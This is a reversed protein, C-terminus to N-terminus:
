NTTGVTEVIYLGSEASQATVKYNLAGAIRGNVKDYYDKGLLNEHDPMNNETLDMAFDFYTGPVKGGDILCRVNENVNRDFVKRQGTGAEMVVRTIDGNDSKNFIRRLLSHKIDGYLIQTTGKEGNVLDERFKQFRKVVGPGVPDGDGAVVKIEWEAAVAQKWSLSFSSIIRKTGKDMQGTNISTAQRAVGDIFKQNEFDIVLIGNTAFSDMGDFKNMEDIEVGDLPMVNEGNVNVQFETLDTITAGGGGGFNLNRMLIRFFEPGIGFEISPNSGGSGNLGTALM